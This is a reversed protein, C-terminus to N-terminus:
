IDVGFVYKTGKNSNREMESAYPRRSLSFRRDPKRLSGPPAEM